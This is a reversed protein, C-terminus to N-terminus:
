ARQRTPRLRIDDLHVHKPRGIAFGIVDAVDEPTLLPGNEEAIAEFWAADYGAAAQFGSRVFGPEILTVRINHTCVEQRLAEVLSHVAFKTSGYVPNAASVQRGVTSGVVVLDRVRAGGDAEAQKVFEAACARLQRLVALYNAQVLEEWRSPDSGLVTGPLGLGASAVFVDAPGWEREAAALLEETHGPATIDGAFPVASGPEEALEAALEALREARRGAAVVRAGRRVLHRTVARGIGSSSGTVVAIRGETM